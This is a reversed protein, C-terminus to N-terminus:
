MKFRKRQTNKIKTAMNEFELFFNLKLDIKDSIVVAFEDSYRVVKGKSKVNLSKWLNLREKYILQEVQFHLVLSVGQQYYSAM